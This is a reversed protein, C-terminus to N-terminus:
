HQGTLDRFRQMIMDHAEKEATQRAMKRDARGQKMERQSFSGTLEGPPTQFILVLRDVAFAGLTLLAAEIVSMALEYYFQPGLSTIFEFGCAVLYWKLWQRYEGLSLADGGFALFWRTRKKYSAWVVAFVAIGVGIFLHAWIMSMVSYYIM